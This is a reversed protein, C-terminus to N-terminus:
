KLKCDMKHQQKIKREMVLSYKYPEIKNYDGVEDGQYCCSRNLCQYKFGRGSPELNMTMCKPCLELM